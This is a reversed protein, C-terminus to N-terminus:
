VITDGNANMYQVFQPVKSGEAAGAQQVLPSLVGPREMSRRALQSSAYKKTDPINKIPDHATRESAGLKTFSSQFGADEPDLATLDDATGTAYTLDQPLTFLDVLALFIPSWFQVGPQQVLADSMTLYKTLGVEILRRSRQPAKQTNPLVVGKMLQGFLGPQIADIIAVVADPGVSDVAALYCLFYVVAQSFQQTSNTQLRTLILMFITQSYQQMDSLPVFEYMAQLLEFAFVDNIKSNILRQVIGLLGQLQNNAVIVKAGRMLLAKWLRTLAPINGRQEWLQASLLPTLLQQYEGSLDDPAHLELLQALIQFIFPIFEVIDERLIVEAPGFIATEFKPLTAPQAECVFRILASVSEFSYQSFRPNSPNKSIQGLINVLRDLVGEYQPALEGRAIIIIRMVCKMLYDNEAVKEPTAGKEIQGFLAMLASEAFPRVDVPTFLPQRSEDKLFLIREIAIAAYSYIVYNDSQLHQVLLPLVSVLQAKTLQNRFTYLYKIADVTLIPHVSGPAAQLDAFVNKGFFDVVDVLVNVSTVGRQVTSGRSAISTLLYVATDKSKWNAQPNQQYQALFTSIYTQIINTVESEFHTMLSQTFETAAARRTDSEASPELDRRIYEIPDDEFMEEEHERISMNPLIIKECFLKLTDPSAFMDRHSGMKVVVSLFKLARSVLVDDRTGLGVNTLMQWTGNVFEGLQPFEEVYKQAFLEAVDCISARIKQLPGPADDDDDGKLEPREWSLYKLLWGMYQSMHDEIFPPLDQSSLDHFLQILSLLAQALLPASSNPPLPQDSSLLSDVHQFLQYHPEMFRGLVFNIESFLRDSRFQSRWRKFISHATALVGNNVVFNDPTLSNVLEDVLGEWQEPFDISAITSLGEGIQSQLRATQKTGLAIMLPVLQNKVATKDGAAIQVDEEGAWLRKVTNKFYVGAAQRVVADASDSRVLELVVQLFGPQAEAKRLSDEATRRTTADPSVTDALYKSLTALSQQDAQM